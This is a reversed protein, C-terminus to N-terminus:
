IQPVGTDESDGSLCDMSLAFFRYEDNNRKGDSRFINEVTAKIQMTAPRRDVKAIAGEAELTIIPSNKPKVTKAKPRRASEKTYKNMKVFPVM